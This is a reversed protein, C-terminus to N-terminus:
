SAEGMSAEQWKGPHLSNAISHLTDTNFAANTGAGIAFCQVGNAALTDCVAVWEDLTTPPTLNYEDFIDKNVYLLGASNFGIPAAVFSGDELTFTDRALQSVKAMGDEGFAPALDVAFSGFQDVHASASTGLNIVDPGSNSALGPRLSAGYEGPAPYFKFNVKIDPYEKNFESILFEA